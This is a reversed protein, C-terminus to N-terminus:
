MVLYAQILLVQYTVDPEFAAFPGLHQGSFWVTVASLLLTALGVAGPGIRWGLIALLPFPLSLAALGLSGYEAPMAFTAVGVLVTALVGVAGEFRRSRNARSWWHALAPATLLAPAVVLEGVVEASWWLVAVKIFDTGLM